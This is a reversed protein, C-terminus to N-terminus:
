RAAPVPRTHQQPLRMPLVPHQQQQPLRVPLVPYPPPHLLLLHQLLPLSPQPAPTLSSRPSSRHERMRMSRWGVRAAQVMLCSRPCSLPRGRMSNLTAQTLVAQTRSHPHSAQLHRLPSHLPASSSTLTQTWALLVMHTPPAAKSTSSHQSRSSAMRPSAATFHQHCHTHPRTSALPGQPTTHQQSAVQQAGCRLLRLTTLEMRPQLQQQQHQHQRLQPLMLHMLHAHHTRAAACAQLTAETALAPGAPPPRAAPPHLPCVAHRRPSGPRGMLIPVTLHPPHTFASGSTTGHVGFSAAPTYSSSRKGKATLRVLALTFCSFAKGRFPM